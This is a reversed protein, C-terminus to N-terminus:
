KKDLEAEVLDIGKQVVATKSIKLKEACRNLKDDMEQTMRIQLRQNKSTNSKPRPSVGVAEKRTHVIIYYEYM